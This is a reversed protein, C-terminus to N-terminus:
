INKHSYVTDVRNDTRTKDPHRIIRPSRTHNSQQMVRLTTSLFLRVSLMNNCTLSMTVDVGQKIATKLLLQPIGVIVRLYTKSGERVKKHLPISHASLVNSPPVTCLNETNQKPNDPLM